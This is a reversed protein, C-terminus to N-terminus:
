EIRREKVGNNGDNDNSDGSRCVRDIRRLGLLDVKLEFSEFLFRVRDCADVKRRDGGVM